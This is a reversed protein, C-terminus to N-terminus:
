TRLSCTKMYQYSWPKPEPKLKLFSRLFSRPVAFGTKGDDVGELDITIFSQEPWTSLQLGGVTFHSVFWM